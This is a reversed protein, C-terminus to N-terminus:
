GGGTTADQGTKAGAARAANEVTERRNGAASAYAGAEIGQIGLAVNARLRELEMAAQQQATALDFGQRVYFQVMSDNLAAQRMQSEQAANAVAIDQGRTGALLQGLANRAQMQETLALNASDAAAQQNIGAQMSSVQRMAGAGGGAGRVGQAAALAQALSRDTAQRLQGQALSPGGQGQSQQWLAMALANQQARMQDQAATDMQPAERAAADAAGQQAVQALRDAGPILSASSDVNHGDPRYQGTGLIGPSDEDGFVTDGVAEAASGIARGVDKVANGAWNFFGM